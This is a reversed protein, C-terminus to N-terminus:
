KEGKQKKNTKLKMNKIKEMMEITLGPHIFEEIEVPKMGEEALSLVYSIQESSYGEEKLLGIYAAVNTKQKRTLRKKKFTDVTNESSKRSNKTSFNSEQTVSMVVAGSPPRIDVFLESLESSNDHLTQITKEMTGLKNQITDAIASIDGLKNKGEGIVENAIIKYRLQRLYSAANEKELVGIVEKAPINDCACSYIERLVQLNTNYQLAINKYDNSVFAEAKQLLTLLSDIAPNKEM